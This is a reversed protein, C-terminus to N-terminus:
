FQIASRMRTRAWARALRWQSGLQETDFLQRAMGFSECGIVLHDRPLTGVTQQGPQALVLVYESGEIARGQGYIWAPADSGGGFPKEVVEVQDFLLNLHGPPMQGPAVAPLKRAEQVARGGSKRANVVDHEFQDRM